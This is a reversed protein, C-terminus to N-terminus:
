SQFQNQLAEARRIGERHLQAARRRGEVTNLDLGNMEEGALDDATLCTRPMIGERVFARRCKDYAARDLFSNNTRIFWDSVQKAVELPISYGFSTRLSDTWAQFTPQAERIAFDHAARRLVPDDTSRTKLLTDFSELDPEQQVPAPPQTTVTYASGEKLYGVECLHEWAREFTQLDAWNLSTNDDSVEALTELGAQTIEVGQSALREKFDIFTNRVADLYDGEAGAYQSFPPCIQTFYPYDRNTALAVRANRAARERDADLTKQLEYV